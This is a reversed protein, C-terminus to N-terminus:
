RPVRPDERRMATLLDPLGERYTPEIPRWGLASLKANSMARDAALHRAVERGYEAEAQQLPISGPGPVGLSQAVDDGFQKWGSPDEDAVNYVNGPAGRELIARFASAADRLSIFSWRNAGGDIVRYSGNRVAEVLPRFWSGDGYVMGPRAIMVEIGARAGAEAAARETAFNVRSEGAPEVRSAETITGPNSAYVWYGSGVVVRRLGLRHGAALLNQIGEVRVREALPPEASSKAAVHIAAECSLLARQLSGPELIDGVVPEGGAARIREVQAPDRVLGRVAFGADHLARVIATGLYGGAGLVIVRV